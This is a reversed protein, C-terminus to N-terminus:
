KGNYVSFRWDAFTLDTMPGISSIEISYTQLDCMSPFEQSFWQVVNECRENTQVPSYLVRFDSTASTRCEWRAMMMRSEKGKGRSFQPTPNLSAQGRRIEEKAWIGWEVEV